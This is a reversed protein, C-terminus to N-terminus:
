IPARHLSGLLLATRSPVRFSIYLFATSVTMERWLAWTPSGKPSPLQEAPAKSLFTLHKM